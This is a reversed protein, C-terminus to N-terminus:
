NDAQERVFVGESTYILERGGSISVEYGGTQKEIKYPSVDPYNATIHAAILEPLIGQPLASFKCDVSQWTGAHDFQLETGNALKVDYEKRGNDKDREVYAVKEDPFYQEIFAQATDPLKSYSIRDDDDCSALSFVGVLLALATLLSNKM